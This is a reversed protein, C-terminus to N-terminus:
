IIEITPIEKLPTSGRAPNEIIKCMVIRFECNVGAKKRVYM